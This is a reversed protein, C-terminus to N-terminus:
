ERGRSTSGTSLTVAQLGAVHKTLSERFADPGLPGLDLLGGRFLDEKSASVALLRGRRGLRGPSKLGIPGRARRRTSWGAGQVVLVASFASGIEVVAFKARDYGGHARADFWLALAAVAVKDATGLDM